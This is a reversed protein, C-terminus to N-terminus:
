DRVTNIAKNIAKIHRSLYHSHKSKDHNYEIIKKIENKKQNKSLLHFYTSMNAIYTENVESKM